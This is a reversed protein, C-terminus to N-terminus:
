LNNVKSYLSPCSLTCTVTSNKIGAGYRGGALRYLSCVVRKSVAEDEMLFYVLHFTLAVAGANSVTM